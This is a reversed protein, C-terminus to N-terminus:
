LGSSGLQLPVANGPGSEKSSAYVLNEIRCGGANDVVIDKSIALHGSGISRLAADGIGFDIKM